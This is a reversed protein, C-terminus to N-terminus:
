SLVPVPVSTSNVRGVRGCLRPDEHRRDRNTESQSMRRWASPTMGLWHRFAHTFAAPEFYDLAASIETATM